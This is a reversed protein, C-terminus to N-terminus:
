RHRHRSVASDGGSQDGAFAHLPGGGQSRSLDPRRAPALRSSAHEDLMSSSISYSRRILKDWRGDLGPDEADDIRPEWYGLGLSAYQGPVFSTGGTDPQVRLVWLDSHTPEFQTIVANYHEHRFLEIAGQHSHRRRIASRPSKLELDPFCAEAIARGVMAGSATTPPTADDPEGVFWVRGTDLAQPTAGVESPQLTLRDSAFTVHDFVLDPTHRDPFYAMPYGDVFGIQDPVSRYLITARRERELRRLMNDGAASLRTPDMGGAALVVRSGATAATVALEVAHDTHGVVLVDDDHGGPLVDIHIREGLDVDPPPVWNEDCRRLAVLCGRCRYSLKNTSVVLLEGHSEISEVREGYGVDLEEEGVLEPFVVGHGPEVVRVRELGSRLSSVAVSLGAANGGIIVLDYAFDLDEPM